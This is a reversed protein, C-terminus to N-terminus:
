VNGIIQSAIKVANANNSAFIFHFIPVNKSNFLPLPDKTVYKWITKLRQSYLDAIKKIPDPIKSVIESNGFLTSQTERTYFTSKIDEESMGFFNCLKAPALLEGNKGLLRNIITGTPVLIWLDTRTERLKEICSWDVEMAFPDLFILSAYKSPKETMVKALKCIQNNANDHVFKISLGSIYPSLTTELSSLSNNNMDIFYYHDFKQSLNLVREGSGRYVDNEKESTEDGFLKCYISSAMPEDKAENDRRGSGAFGDFYITKWYNNKNMISLYASVYKSFANLKVETWDGGWSHKASNTKM